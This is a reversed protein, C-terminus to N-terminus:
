HTENLLGTELMKLVLRKAVPCAAASADGAHELVVVMAYRPKDAPVYGAFWAHDPQHEGVVATGTMGAISVQDLYLTDHATGNKNAM